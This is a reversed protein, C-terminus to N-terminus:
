QRTGNVLRRCLEAHGLNGSGCFLPRMALKTNKVLNSATKPRWCLAMEATLHWELTATKQGARGRQLVVVGKAPMSQM